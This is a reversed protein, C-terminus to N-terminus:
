RVGKAIVRLKGDHPTLLTLVRDAEGLEFRSLVIAPTRYLRPAPVRARYCPDPRAGGASRGRAGPAAPADSRVTRVFVWRVGTRDRGGCRRRWPRRRRGAPPGVDHGLQPSTDMSRTPIMNRTSVVVSRCASMSSVSAVIRASM